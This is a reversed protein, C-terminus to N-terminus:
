INYAISMDKPNVIIIDGGTYWSVTNKSEHLLKPFNGQRSVGGEETFVSEKVDLNNVNIHDVVGEAL